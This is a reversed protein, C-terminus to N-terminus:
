SFEERIDMLVQSVRQRSIGMQKAVESQTCGGAMLDLIDRAVSDSSEYIADLTMKAEVQDAIDPIDADYYDAHERLGNMNLEKLIVRRVYDSLGYSIAGYLYTGLTAGKAPDYGEICETVILWAQAELDEWECSPYQHFTVKVASRVIKEIEKSKM